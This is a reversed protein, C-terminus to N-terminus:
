QSRSRSWAHKITLWCVSMLKTCSRHWGVFSLRPHIDQFGSAQPSAALAVLTTSAHHAQVAESQHHSTNRHESSVASPEDNAIGFYLSNYYDPQTNIFAHILIKTDKELLPVLLHLQKLQYYGTHCVASVQALM